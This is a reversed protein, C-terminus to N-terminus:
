ARGPTIVAKTTLGSSDAAATFAEDWQELSFKKIPRGVSGEGGELKLVGIEVMKILDRMNERSYMWKGKLQLDRHMVAQHPISLDGQIGGMLSVRGSHRLALICSKLHTSKEAAAPSIDFYADIPSFQQLAMLDAEMDGTIQVIEVRESSAKIKMLAEVNRGMAIVKAGIALAVIVAAGGFPGTAPAVIVTEGAKLGIDSMGGFPIALSSLDSLTEIKLGLGGSEKSGLLRKEDLPHCNELPMKTFEAYTADKWEGRMLKKSGDSYGEHLGMLFATSPEDRARIFSDVLVLKGPELSTADPGVAAIRGVGSFGIVLPMPFPYKRTGNYVERTYSVVNAIEMRVVVSGPTPQPTPISKIEPPSSTSSLVLARHTKPLTTEAAM